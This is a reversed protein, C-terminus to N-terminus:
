KLLGSIIKALADRLGFLGFSGLALPLGVSLELAGPADAGAIFFLGMGLIAYIGTMIAAAKTKWGSEM